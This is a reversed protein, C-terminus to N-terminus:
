PQATSLTTVFAAHEPSALGPQLAALLGAPDDKTKYLTPAVM